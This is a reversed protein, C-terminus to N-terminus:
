TALIGVREILRQLRGLHPSSHCAVTVFPVKGGPNHRSLREPVPPPHPNADWGVSPEWTSKQLASVSRPHGVSSSTRAASRCGLRPAYIVGFRGDPLQKPDVPVFRSRWFHQPVSQRASPSRPSSTAAILSARVSNAVSCSANSSFNRVGAWSRSVNFLRGTM